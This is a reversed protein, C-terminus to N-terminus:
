GVIESAPSDRLVLIHPTEPDPTKQGILFNLPNQVASYVRHIWHIHKDMGQCSGEIQNLREEINKLKELILYIQTSDSM